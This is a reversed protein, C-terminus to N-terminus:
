PTVPAKSCEHGSGYMNAVPQRCQGCIYRTGVEHGCDVCRAHRDSVMDYNHLECAAPKLPTVGLAACHECLEHTQEVLVFEIRAVIQDGDFNGYLAIWYEIFEEPTEFGELQAANGIKIWSLPSVGVDLVKIRGVSVRAMGPQIAYTQGVRYPAEGSRGLPRRTVTKTGDLVKELLVPKFIM